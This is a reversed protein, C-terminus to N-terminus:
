TTWFPYDSYHAEVYTLTFFCSPFTFFIPPGDNILIIQQNEWMINGIM